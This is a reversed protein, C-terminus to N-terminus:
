SINIVFNSNSHFKFKHIQFNLLFLFLFLFRFPGLRELKAWSRKDETCGLRASDRASMRARQKLREQGSREEYKVLVRPGGMPRVIVRAHREHSQGASGV